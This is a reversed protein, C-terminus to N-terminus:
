EFEITKAGRLDAGVSVYGVSGPNKLVYNVVERESSMEPPPLDRGSFIMQQWYSRVAEVSRGLAEGSWRRRVPSQPDLDVPQIVEGNPWRRVKRLFAQEVFFRAVVKVPNLPNVILRFGPATSAQAGSVQSDGFRVLTVGVALFCVLGWRVGIRVRSPLKFFATMTNTVPQGGRGLLIGISLLTDLRLWQASGVVHLGNLSAEWMAQAGIVYPVQFDVLTLGPPARNLIPYVAQPM